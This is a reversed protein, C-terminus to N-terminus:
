QNEYICNILDRDLLLLLLCDLYNEDPFNPVSNNIFDLVSYVCPCEKRNEQIEYTLNPDEYPLMEEDDIIDEKDIYRKEKNKRVETLSIVDGPGKYYLLSYISGEIFKEAYRLFRANWENDVKFNNLAKIMGLIATGIIDSLSISADIRRMYGRKAKLIIFYINGLVIREVYEKTKEKDGISKYYNYQKVYELELKKREEPKLEHFLVYGKERIYKEWNLIYEKDEPSIVFNPSNYTLRSIIESKRIPLKNM